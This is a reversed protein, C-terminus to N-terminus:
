DLRELRAYSVILRKLGVREFHVRVTEDRGDMRSEIVLGEGFTAHRVRQGARFQLQPAKPRPSDSRSDSRDDTPSDSQLYRVTSRPSHDTERTGYGDNRAWRVTDRSGRGQRWSGSILEPPIDELFRSPVSPESEGYRARMFAYTLFLRDQARTLGVYM